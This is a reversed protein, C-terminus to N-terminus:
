MRIAPDRVYDATQSRLTVGDFYGRHERDFLRADALLRNMCDCLVQRLQSPNGTRYAAALAPQADVLLATRLMTAVRDRGELLRQALAAPDLVQDPVFTLEPRVAAPTGTLAQFEQELVECLPLSRSPSAPM